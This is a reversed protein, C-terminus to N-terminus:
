MVEMEGLAPLIQFTSAIVATYFDRGGICVALDYLYTGTEIGITDEPALKILLEGNEGCDDPMIIKQIIPNEQMNDRYKVTFVAYDKKGLRYPKDAADTLAVELYLTNGRPLKIM